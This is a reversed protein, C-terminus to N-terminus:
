SIQCAVISVNVFRESSSLVRVSFLLDDIQCSQRWQHCRINDHRRSVTVGTVVLNAVKQKWHEVDHYQVERWWIEHRYRLSYLRCRGGILNLGIMYPFDRKIVMQKTTSHMEGSFLLDIDLFPLPMGWIQDSGVMGIKCPHKLIQSQNDECHKPCPSVM